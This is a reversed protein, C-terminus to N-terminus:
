AASLWERLDDYGIAAKINSHQNMPHEPVASLIAAAGPKDISRAPEFGALHRLASFGKFRVTLRLRLSLTFDLIAKPSRRLRRGKPGDKLECERQAGICGHSKLSPPQLAAFHLPHKDMVSRKEVIVTSFTLATARRVSLRGSRALASLAAMSPSIPAASSAISRSALRRTSITVPAPAAKEDPKSRLSCISRRGAPTSDQRAMRRLSKSVMMRKQCKGSGVMAATRPGHRAPAQSSASAQSMVMAASSANKPSGSNFNPAPMTAIIRGQTTPGFIALSIM